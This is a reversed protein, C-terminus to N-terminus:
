PEVDNTATKQVQLERISMATLLLHSDFPELRSVRVRVAAAQVLLNLRQLCHSRVLVNDRIHKQQNHIASTCAAQDHAPM